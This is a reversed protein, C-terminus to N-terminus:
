GVAAHMADFSTVSARRDYTRELRKLVRERLDSLAGPMREFVEFSLGQDLRRLLEREALASGNRYMANKPMLGADCADLLEAIVRVDEDPLGAQNLLIANLEEMTCSLYSM